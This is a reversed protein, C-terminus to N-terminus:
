HDFLCCTPKLKHIVATMYDAQALMPKLEVRAGACEGLRDPM